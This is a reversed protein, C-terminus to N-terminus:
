NVANGRGDNAETQAVAYPSENKITYEVFVNGLQDSGERDIVVRMKDDEWRFSSYAHTGGWGKRVTQTPQGMKPILKLAVERTTVATRRNNHETSYPRYLRKYSTVKGAHNYRFELYYSDRLRSWPYFKDINRQRITTEAQMFGGIDWLHKRVSDLDAKALELGLVRIEGLETNEDTEAASAPIWSAATLLVMFGLLNFFAIRM